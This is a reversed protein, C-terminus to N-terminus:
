IIYSGKKLLLMSAYGGVPILMLDDNILTRVKLYGLLGMPIIRGQKTHKIKGRLDIPKKKSM